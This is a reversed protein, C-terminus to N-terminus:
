SIVETVKIKIAANPDPFRKSKRITETIKDFLEGEKLVEAKGKIRVMKKTEKNVAVVMVAEPNDSLNQLTVKGFIEAYVLEEDSLVKMSGKAAVDPNGNKDVTVIFCLEDNIIKKVDENLM